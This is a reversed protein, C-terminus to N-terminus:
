HWIIEKTGDQGERMKGELLGTLGHVVHALQCALHEDLDFLEVPAEIRGGKGAANVDNYHSLGIAGQLARGEVDAKAFHTDEAGSLFHYPSLLM